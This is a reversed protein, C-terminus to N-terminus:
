VARDTGLQEALLEVRHRRHEAPGREPKRHSRANRGIPHYNPRAITVRIEAAPVAIHSTVGVIQPRSVVSM